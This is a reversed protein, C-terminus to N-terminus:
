QFIVHLLSFYAGVQSSKRVSFKKFFYDYVARASCKETDIHLELNNPHERDLLATGVSIEQHDFAIVRFHNFMKM